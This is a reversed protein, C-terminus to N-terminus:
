LRFFAEVVMWCLLLFLVARIILDRRARAAADREAIRKQVDRLRDVADHARSLEKFRPDFIMAALNHAKAQAPSFHRSLVWRGHRAGFPATVIGSGLGAVHAGLAPGARDRRV